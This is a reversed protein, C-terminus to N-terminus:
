RVVCFLGVFRRWWAFREAAKLMPLLREAAPVLPSLDNGPLESIHPADALPQWPLSEFLRTFEAAAERERKNLLKLGQLDRFSWCLDYLRHFCASESFSELGQPKRLRREPDILYRLPVCATRLM